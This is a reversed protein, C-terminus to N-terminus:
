DLLITVDPAGSVVAELDVGLGREGGFRINYVRGIDPSTADISAIVGDSEAFRITVSATPAGANVVVRDLQSVREILYVGAADYHKFRSAM